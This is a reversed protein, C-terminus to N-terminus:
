RESGALALVFALRTEVGLAEDVDGDPAADFDFEPV